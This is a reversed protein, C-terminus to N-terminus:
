RYAEVKLRGENDVVPMEATCFCYSSQDGRGRHMLLNAINRRFYEKFSVRFIAQSIWIHLETHAAAELVGDHCVIIQTKYGM